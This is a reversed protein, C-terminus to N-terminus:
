SLPEGCADSDIAGETVDLTELFEVLVDACVTTGVMVMDAPDDSVAAPRKDNPAPIKM